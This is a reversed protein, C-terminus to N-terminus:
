HLTNPETYVLKYNDNDVQQQQQQQQQQQEQERDTEVALFSSSYIFQNLSATRVTVLSYLFIKKM